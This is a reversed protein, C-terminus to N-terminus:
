FFIFTVLVFVPFLIIVSYMLYGFFSPMRIGQGEAIAKVMFNPGNGIYTNAGMFVSGVSIAMLIHEPEGPATMQIAHELGLSGMATALFTLYTPANDLFSSLLGTLWFYKAPSDLGLEGGRANLLMLAPIMTTFIGVFLYAVELIPAFNFHNAARVPKPTTRLSILALAIMIGDRLLNPIHLEGYMGFTFVTEFHLVGSMIVSGVVGLLLVFNFLGEIRVPAPNDHRAYVAPDERRSLFVDMGYFVGLVIAVAFAWIPTLVFTWEFPIGQLFGLFLPPDGIPTLSGGINCVLFIFFLVVHAQYRREKNARLIPRILLMAAGTTGIVSALITGIFIIATNIAPTCRVDGSIYIGGSIVFLSGLLIIFSIYEEYSSFIRAGYAVLFGPEGAASFYMLLLGVAMWVASIKGFHHEWFHPAFLPFLAISLLIGVFPLITWVPPVFGATGGEGSAFAVSAGLTLLVPLLLGPRFFRSRM